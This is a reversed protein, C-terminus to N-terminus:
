KWKELSHTGNEPFCKREVPAPETVSQSHMTPHAWRVTQRCHRRILKSFPESIPRGPWLVSWINVWAFIKITSGSICPKCFLGCVTSSSFCSIEGDHILTLLFVRTASTRFKRCRNCIAAKVSIACEPFAVYKRPQWVRFLEPVCLLCTPHLWCGRLVCLLLRDWAVYSSRVQVM